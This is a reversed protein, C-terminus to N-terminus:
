KRRGRREAERYPQIEFRQEEKEYQKPKWVETVKKSRGVVHARERGGNGKPQRGDGTIQPFGEHEAANDRNQREQLLRCETSESSRQRIARPCVNGAQHSAKALMWLEGSDGARVEWTRSIELGSQVGEGAEDNGTRLDTVLHIAPADTVVTIATSAM